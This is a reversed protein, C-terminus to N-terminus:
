IKCDNKPVCISKHVICVDPSIATCIRIYLRCHFLGNLCSHVMVFRKQRLQTVFIIVEFGFDHDRLTLFLKEFNWWIRPNIDKFTIFYKFTPSM